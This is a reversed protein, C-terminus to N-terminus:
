CSLAEIFLPSAAPVTGDRSAPGGTARMRSQVGRCHHCFPQGYTGGARVQTGDPAAHRGVEDVGHSGVATTTRDLVVVCRATAGFPHGGHGIGVDSASVLWRDTPFLRVSIRVWREIDKGSARRRRSDVLSHQQCVGQGWFLRGPLDPYPCEHHTDDGEQGDGDVRRDLQAPGARLGLM